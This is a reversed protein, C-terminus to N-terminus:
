NFCITLQNELKTERKPPFYPKKEDKQECEAEAQATKAKKSRKHM